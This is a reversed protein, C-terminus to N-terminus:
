FFKFHRANPMHKRNYWNRFRAYAENYLLNSNNFRKNEGNHYDIQSQLYKVYVDDYPAPAILVSDGPTDSTYGGFIVNETGEHTCVIEEYILGELLSLWRIKETKSFTNPQIADVYDIAEIITM